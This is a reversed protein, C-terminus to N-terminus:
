IIAASHTHTCAHERAHTYTHIHVCVRVCVLVYLILLYNEDSLVIQSEMEMAESAPPGHCAGRSTEGRAEKGPTPPPPPGQFSRGPSSHPIPSVGLPSVLQGVTLPGGSQRRGSVELLAHGQGYRELGVM